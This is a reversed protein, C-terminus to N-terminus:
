KHKKKLTEKMFDEFETNFYNQSSCHYFAEAYEMGPFPYFAARYQNMGQCMKDYNLYKLQSKHEMIADIKIHMVNTINVLTNPWFIMSWVEYAAVNCSYGNLCCQQFLLNTKVHDPHSDAFNPLYVM